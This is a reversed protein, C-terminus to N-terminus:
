HNWHGFDDDDIDDENEKQGVEWEEPVKSIFLEKLSSVKISLYRAINVIITRFTRNEVRLQELEERLALIKLSRADDENKYLSSKLKVIESNLNQKERELLKIQFLLTENQGELNATKCNLDLYEKNKKDVVEEFHEEHGKLAERMEEISLDKEKIREKLTRVVSELQAYEERKAGRAQLAARLEANEKKLIDLMEKQEQKSKKLTKEEDEKHAKYEYTDLRKPRKTRTRAYNKGREMDLMEAVDTQLQSLTGKKLKRTISAGTSDIGLFEIHAHYNVIEEGNEGFHGEDRHIAMQFVETDFKTELYEKIKKLDDMTHHSNLNVIASLHTKVSKQLKQGTRKQYNERRLFLARRYHLFANDSNNWVENKNNPFITNVTKKSRDNHKLYGAHGSAIHISSRSKIMEM